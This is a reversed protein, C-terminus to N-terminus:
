QGQAGFLLLALVHPTAICGFGKQQSICAWFALVDAGAAGFGAFGALSWRARASGLICDGDSRLSRLDLAHYVLRHLSIDLLLQVYAWRGGCESLLEIAAEKDAKLQPCLATAAPPM